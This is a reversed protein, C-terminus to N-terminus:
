VRRPWSSTSSSSARLRLAGEGLTAVAVVAVVFFGRVGASMPAHGRRRASRRPWRMGSPRTNSAAAPYLKSAEVLDAYAGTADGAASRVSAACPDRGVVYLLASSREIRMRSRLPPARGEAMRAGAAFLPPDADWPALTSARLALRSRRPTTVPPRRMALKPSHMGIGM